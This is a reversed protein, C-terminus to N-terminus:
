KHKDQSLKKDYDIERGEKKKNPHYHEIISFVKTRGLLRYVTHIFFTNPSRFQSCEHTEKKRRKNEIGGSKRLTKEKGM